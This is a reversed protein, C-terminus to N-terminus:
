KKLAVPATTELWARAGCKLPRDPQYKMIAPGLIIVTTAYRKKMGTTEVGIAKSRSGTKKDKAILDRRIHIRTM